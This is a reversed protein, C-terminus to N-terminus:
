SMWIMRLCHRRTCYDEIYNRNGVRLSASWDLLDRYVSGFTTRSSDLDEHEM